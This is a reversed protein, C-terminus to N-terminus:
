RMGVVFAIWSFANDAKDVQVYEGTGDGGKNMSEWYVTAWKFGCELMLEKLETASWVRWDYVFADKHMVGKSDKFHIAYLGHHTVPDYRKQDWYYTYKGLGKVTYTKQERGKQIFGPGGAMELVFLGDKNLSKLAAQFYKKMQAREKFVFFSFNGAGIIDFKQKTPICVDQRVVNVRKKEDPKLKSFSNKKGYALPEPDLDLGMSTRKSHSKVWECSIMFTGCFDERLALAQRGRLEYFMREFIHVHEEPTQVSNEYYTYKDFKKAKSM